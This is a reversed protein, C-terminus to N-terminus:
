THVAKVSVVISCTLVSCVANRICQKQNSETRTDDLQGTKGEVKGVRMARTWTVHDRHDSNDGFLERSLAYFQSINRQGASVLPCTRQRLQAPPWFHRWLSQSSPLLGIQSTRSDANISCCAINHYCECQSQLWTFRIRWPQAPWCATPLDCAAGPWGFLKLLVMYGYGTQLACCPLKILVAFTWCSCSMEILVARLLGMVTQTKDPKTRGAAEDNLRVRLTACLYVLGLGPRCLDPCATLTGRPQSKSIELCDACSPPLATLGV